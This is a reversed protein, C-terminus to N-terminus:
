TETAQWLRRSLRVALAAALRRRSHAPALTTRMPKVQKQTLKEVQQLLKDDFPLGVLKDCGTLLIPRSNTGTVAICLHAVVDNERRLSVAVGALPFDIAGRLRAKEYGAVLGRDIAIRVALLVEDDALRLHAAGDERFLSELATWRTGSAGGLEVMAGLVLLVPAMDGSYAAQCRSAAPAIHCRNGRYKLCFDNNRRWWEGQNYYICRTDLCLNGGLTGVSRHAPAAVQRAAQALAPLRAGVLPDNALRELTVGAGIRLGAPEVAVDRLGPLGTIDILAPTHRLGHRLNPILDTGGALLAAGPYRQRAAVAESLSAPRLLQFAPLATM